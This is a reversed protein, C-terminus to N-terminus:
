SPRIHISLTLLYPAKIEFSGQGFGVLLTQNGQQFHVTTGGIRLGRSPVISDISTKPRSDSPSKKRLPCYGCPRIGMLMWTRHATFRSYVPKVSTSVWYGRVSGEPEWQLPEWEPGANWLIAVKDLEEVARPAVPLADITLGNAQQEQIAQQIGKLHAPVEEVNSKAQLQMLNPVAKVAQSLLSPLGGTLTSSPQMAVEFRGNKLQLGARGEMGEAVM